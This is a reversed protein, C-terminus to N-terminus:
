EPNRRSTKKGEKRQHAVVSAAKGRGKRLANQNGVRPQARPLDNIAARSETKQGSKGDVLGKSPNSGQARAYDNAVKKGRGESL